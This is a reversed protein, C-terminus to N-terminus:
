SFNQTGRQCSSHDKRENPFIVVIVGSEASIAEKRTGKAVGKNRAARLDRGGMWGM